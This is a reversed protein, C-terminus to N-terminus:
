ANERKQADVSMETDKGGGRTELFFSTTNEKWSVDPTASLPHSHVCEIHKKELPHEDLMTM